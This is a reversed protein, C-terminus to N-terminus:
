GQNPLRCELLSRYISFVADANKKSSFSELSVRRAEKSIRQAKQSDNMVEMIKEALDDPAGYSYVLGTLNDQVIERNAGTDSVIVPLGGMMMEVTVRGFAESRSCVIGVDSKEILRPIDNVYGLFEVNNTLCNSVAFEKLLTEYGGTGTGAFLMKVAKRNRDRVLIRLAELAEIQGKSQSLIGIMLITFPEVSSTVRPIIRTFSGTDIGNYIVVSTKGSGLFSVYKERLAESVFILKKARSLIYRKVRSSSSLFRLSYDEEGFERFHWVHSVGLQLAVQAGFDIVSSNSHVIDPNFGRLLRKVKNLALSNLLGKKFNELKRRPYSLGLNCMWSRFPVCIYPICRSKLEENLLGKRPTIVLPDVGYNERLATILQLLSINAGYLGTYHTVFIVRL